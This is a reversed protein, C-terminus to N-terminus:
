LNELAAHMSKLGAGVGRPEFGLGQLRTISLSADAPRPDRFVVDSASSAQVAEVPFGFEAALQVAFDYRNSREPGALNLVGDWGQTAGALLALCADEAYIPTRWQDTFAAVRGGTLILRLWQECFNRGKAAGRGWGYTLALRLVLARGQTAELVAAEADLKSRGYVGLPRAPDAEASLARSGDCVQDTSTFVVRAGAAAAAQAVLKAGQVNIQRAAPPDAACDDPKTLGALHFVVDPKAEAVLATVADPLCIDLRREEVGKLGAAKSHHAGWVVWGQDRLLVALNSGLFGGAGTVLARM